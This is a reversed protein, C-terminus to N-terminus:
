AAVLAQRAQYLIALTDRHHDVISEDGIRALPICEFGPQLKEIESRPLSVVYVATLCNVRRGEVNPDTDERHVEVYAHQTFAARLVEKLSEAHTIEGLLREQAQHLTDFPRVAVGNITLKGQWGQDGAHRKKLMVGGLVGYDNHVWIVLEICAYTM